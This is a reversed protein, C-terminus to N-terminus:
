GVLFAGNFASPEEKMLGLISTSLTVITPLLTVTTHLLTNTFTLVINDKNENDNKSTFYTM